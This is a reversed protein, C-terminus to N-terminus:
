YERCQIDNNDIHCDNVLYDIMDFNDIITEGSITNEDEKLNWADSEAYELGCLQHGRIAYLQAKTIDAKNIVFSASSSNSVFGSRIKM